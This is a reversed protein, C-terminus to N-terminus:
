GSTTGGAARKKDRTNHPQWMHIGGVVKALQAVTIPQLEKM